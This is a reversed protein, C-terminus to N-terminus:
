VFLEGEEEGKDRSMEGAREEKREKGREKVCREELGNVWSRVM